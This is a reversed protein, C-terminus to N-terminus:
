GEQPSTARAVARRIAADPGIVRRDLAAKRRLETRLQRTFRALPEADADPGADIAFTIQDPQQEMISQGELWQPHWIPTFM